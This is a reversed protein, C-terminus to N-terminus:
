RRGRAESGLIAEVQSMGARIAANNPDIKLGEEWERMAEDYQGANALVFGLNYRGLILEPFYRVEERLHQLADDTRGVMSLALGLTTNLGMIGPNCEVAAEMDRIAEPARRAGLLLQARKFLDVATVLRAMVPATSSDDFFEGAQNGYLSLDYTPQYALSRGPPASGEPHVTFVRYFSNQFAPTFHKLAEPSFHFLYAASDRRLKLADAMFRDSEGSPDLAIKAEYLFYGVDNELCYRYFGEETSYISELYGRIRERVDRNEVKSQLVVPRDAYALIMPSTGFRALFGDDAETNHRIWDIVGLNNPHWNPVPSPEPPLFRDMFGKFATPQRFHISEHFEFLLCLLAVAILIPRKSVMMGGAVVILFFVFLGTMRQILLYIGLFALLLCLLLVRQGGWTRWPTGRLGSVAAILALIPITGYTYLFIRPDPSRLDEIWLLRAEFSLRSPDDPKVGLNQAKAKMLEWVHSYEAEGRRIAISGMALVSLLVFVACLRGKPSWSRGILQTLPLAFLAVVAPFLYFQRVRLAPAIFSAALVPLLLWPILRALRDAEDARTFHLYIWAAILCLAFVIFYFRTLHWCALASGLLLGSLLSLGRERRIDEGATKFCALLSWLSFFILPLGLHERGYAGIIRSYTAMGVTYLAAAFVGAWRSDWFSVSAGYVALVGLSTTFCIAYILFVHFPIRGGLSRYLVGDLYEMFVTVNERVRLGRPHQVKPDFAPVTEGEAVMKAYRYQFASETWFLGTDDAPNYYELNKFHHARILSAILFLVILLSFAFARSERLRVLPALYQRAGEARKKARERRSRADKRRLRRDKRSM